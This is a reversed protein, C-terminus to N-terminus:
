DENEILNNSSNVSRWREASNIQGIIRMDKERLFLWV